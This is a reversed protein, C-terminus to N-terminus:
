PLSLNPVQFLRLPSDDSNSIRGTLKVNLGPRDIDTDVLFARPFPTYLELSRMAPRDFLGEDSEWAERGREDNM